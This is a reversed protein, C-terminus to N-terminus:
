KPKLLNNQRTLYGQQTTFFVYSNAFRSINIVSWVNAIVWTDKPIRWGDYYDEESNGHSVLPVVPHFRQVERIIANVYPLSRQDELCPLRTNGIIETIEQYAREQVDENHLM